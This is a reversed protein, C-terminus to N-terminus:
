APLALARYKGLEVLGASFQLRLSERTEYPIWRYTDDDTGERYSRSRTGLRDVDAPVAADWDQGPDKAALNRTMAADWDDKEGKKAYKWPWRRRPM